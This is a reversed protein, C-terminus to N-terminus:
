KKTFKIITSITEKTPILSILSELVLYIISKM